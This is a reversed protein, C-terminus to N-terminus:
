RAAVASLLRQLAACPFARFINGAGFHLWRPAAATAERMAEIDFAPLAIGAADFAAKETLGQLTLRM